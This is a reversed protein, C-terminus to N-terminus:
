NVFGFSVGRVQAHITYRLSMAIIIREGQKSVSAHRDAQQAGHKMESLM